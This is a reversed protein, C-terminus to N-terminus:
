GIGNEDGEWSYETWEGIILRAALEEDPIYHWADGVLGTRRAEQMAEALLAADDLHAHEPGTLRLEYGDPALYIAARYTRLPKGGKRQM